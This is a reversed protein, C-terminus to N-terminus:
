MFDHFTGAHGEMFLRGGPSKFLYAGTAAYHSWESETILGEQYLRFAKLYQNLFMRLLWSFQSAADDSLAEPAWLGKNFLSTLEASGGLFAEVDTFGELLNNHVAAANAANQYKIQM